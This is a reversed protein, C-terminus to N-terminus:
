LSLGRDNATHRFQKDHVADNREQGQRLIDGHAFEVSVGPEGMPKYVKNAHRGHRPRRHIHRRRCGLVGHEKEAKSRFLGKSKTHGGDGVDECLGQWARLLWQVLQNFIYPPQTM